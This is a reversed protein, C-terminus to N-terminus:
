AITRKSIKFAVIVRRLFNANTTLHQRMLQWGLALSTLGVISGVILGVVDQCCANRTGIARLLSHLLSCNAHALNVVSALLFATALGLRLHWLTNYREIFVAHLRPQKLLVSMELGLHADQDRTIVDQLDRPLAARVQRVACKHERVLHRCCFLYLLASRWCQRRSGVGSVTIKNRIWFGIALLGHGLCFTVIAAVLLLTFQNWERIWWWPIDSRWPVSSVAAFMSGTVVYLFVDRGLSEAKEYVSNLFDSAAM